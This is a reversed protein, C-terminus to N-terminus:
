GVPDANLFPHCPAGLLETALGTVKTSLSPHHTLLAALHTLLTHIEPEAFGGPACVRTRVAMLDIMTEARLAPTLPTLALERRLSDIRGVVHWSVTAHPRLAPSTERVAAAEGVAGSPPRPAPPTGQPLASSPTWRPAPVEPGKLTGIRVM